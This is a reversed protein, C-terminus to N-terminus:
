AVGSAILVQHVILAAVYAVVSMWALQLFAWRVGGAERATVALTPLCQMALVYYVLLSWCTATTFVPTGDERRADGVQELVGQSEADDQGTVIVAMTSVFVERAAFSTVVGVTLQWDFGLPAFVPQVAKGIRGAFSSAKAHSSELQDAREELEDAARDRDGVPATASPEAPQATRSDHVNSDALRTQRIEAAMQRLQVAADPPDVKPYSGLWWLVISIALINTGANKLFVVSRDFTTVMATRLSPVKYTPLELIMPRHAGRLVTRGLVLASALGAAAGLAYCGVFALAAMLPRDRFLLVTVLVYVPLRASCTMFPAILITLLRQRRDPITRTAMIGPLACAHSSLLPVFSHGPLGFPRLLRDMLFAARALYGTDELLSILFFMLAIQPVFIVTAGIGSVVGGAVLERLIGPPMLHEVLGTLGGGVLEAIWAPQWAAVWEQNGSFVAEIWDMPYTALQFVVMLLGTMVAVFVLMGMFPHTFVRDLRDTTSWTTAARRPAAAPGREQPPAAADHPHGVCLGYVSDAWEELGERTGPPTRNPVRATALASALRDLGEGSRASCEVVSCGLQRELEAPEIRIGSRRALDIMNLAVVTPLRRGLVEGVLLLNRALNASDVVVCVAAPAGIPEGRPALNGALVERCVASESQALELSYIGPLDILHVRDGGEDSRIAGIRAEQTTGPFNSTKHRLGCLRNFLTTKGTNPNGLLAVRRPSGGSGAGM